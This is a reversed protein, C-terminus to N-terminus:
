HHPKQTIQDCWFRVMLRKGATVTYARTSAPKLDFLIGFFNISHNTISALNISYNNKMLHYIKRGESNNRNYKENM